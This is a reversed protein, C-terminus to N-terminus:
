TLQDHLILSVTLLPKQQFNEFTQKTLIKSTILNLAVINKIPDFNMAVHSMPMFTVMHGNSCLDNGIYVVSKRKRILLYLFSMARIPRSM